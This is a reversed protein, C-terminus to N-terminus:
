FHASDANTLMVGYFPFGKSSAVPSQIKRSRDKKRNRCFKPNPTPPRDIVKSGWGAEAAGTIELDLSVVEIHLDASDRYLKCFKLFHKIAKLM